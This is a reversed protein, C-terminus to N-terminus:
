GKTPSIGEKRRERFPTLVITASSKITRMTIMMDAVAKMQATGTKWDVVLPSLELRAKWSCKWVIVPENADNTADM